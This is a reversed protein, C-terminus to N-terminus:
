WPVANAMIIAEELEEKTKKTKDAKVGDIFWDLDGYKSDVALKSIDEKAQQVQKEYYSWDIHKELKLTKVMESEMWLYGKAGVASDYKIAGNKDVGQRLLVGAGCGPKMPTFLGVKGIFRYNHEGKPLDENMDLYLATNVSLTECADEFKVPEKTFIKFVYPVQFQKGTATWKGPDDPDDKDLKGIYVADNVLCFKEFAHEIEFTYGYMKGYESIFNQIKEDPNEVKISDTKVHVVTYGRKEVENKLNIM